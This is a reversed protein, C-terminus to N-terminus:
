VMGGRRDYTWGLRGPVSIKLEHLRDLLRGTIHGGWCKVRFRNLGVKSAWLRYKKDNFKKRLRKNVIPKFRAEIRQLAKELVFSMDNEVIPHTAQLTCAWAHTYPAQIPQRHKTLRIPDLKDPSYAKHLIALNVNFGLDQALTEYFSYHLIHQRLELPLSAYTTPMRSSTVDAGKSSDTYNVSTHSFTRVPSARLAPHHHHNNNYLNPPVPLVSPESHYTCPLRTM